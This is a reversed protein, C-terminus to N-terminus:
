GQTPEPNNVPFRQEAQATFSVVSAAVALALGNILLHKSTKM